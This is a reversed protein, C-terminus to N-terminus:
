DFFGGWILIAVMIAHSIATVFVNYKDTRPQDHKALVVGIDLAILLLILVQPIHM